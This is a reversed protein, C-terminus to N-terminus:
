GGTHTNVSRAPLLAKLLAFAASRGFSIQHDQHAPGAESDSLTWGATAGAFHVKMEGLM